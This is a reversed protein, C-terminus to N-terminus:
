QNGVQRAAFMSRTSAYHQFKIKVQVVLHVPAHAFVPNDLWIAVGHIHEAEDVIVTITTAIQHPQALFGRVKGM